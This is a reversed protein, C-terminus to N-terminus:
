LYSEISAHGRRRSRRDLVLRDAPDLEIEVRFCETAASRRAGSERPPQLMRAAPAGTRRRYEGLWEENRQNQACNEAVSAVLQQLTLNEKAARALLIPLDDSPLEIVIGM